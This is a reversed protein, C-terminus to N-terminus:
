LVAEVMLGNAFLEANASLGNFYAEAATAGIEFFTEMINHRSVELHICLKQCVSAVARNIAAIDLFHNGQDGLAKDVRISIVSNELVEVVTGAALIGQVCMVHDREIQALTVFDFGCSLM